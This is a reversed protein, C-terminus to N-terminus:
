VLQAVSRVAAVYRPDQLSVVQSPGGSMRALRARSAESM